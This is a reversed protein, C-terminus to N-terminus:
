EAQKRASHEAERIADQLERLQRNKYTGFEDPAEDAQLTGDAAKQQLGNPGNILEESLREVRKIDEHSKRAMTKQGHFEIGVGALLLTISALIAKGIRNTRRSRAYRGQERKAHEMASLFSETVEAEAIEIFPIKWYKRIETDMVSTIKKIDEDSTDLPMCITLEHSPGVVKQGDFIHGSEIEGIRYGSVDPNKGLISDSIKQLVKYDPFVTRIKKVRVLREPANEQPIM